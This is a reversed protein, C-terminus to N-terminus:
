LSLIAVHKVLTQPGCEPRQALYGVPYTGRYEILQDVHLITRVMIIASGAFGDDVQLGHNRNCNRRGSKLGHLEADDM